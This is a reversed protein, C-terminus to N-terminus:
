LINHVLLHLYYEKITSPTFIKFCELKDTTYVNFVKNFEIHELEILEYGKPMNKFYEEKIIFDCPLKM